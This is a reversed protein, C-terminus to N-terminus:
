RAIQRTFFVIFYCDRRSFTPITEKKRKSRMNQFKPISLLRQTLTSLIDTSSYITLLNIFFFIHARTYTARARSFRNKNTNSRRVPTGPFLSTKLRAFARLRAQVYCPPLFPQYILLQARDALEHLESTRFFIIFSSLPRPFFQTFYLFRNIKLSFLPM